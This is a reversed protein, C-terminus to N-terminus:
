TKFRDDAGNSDVWGKEGVVTQTLTNQGAHSRYTQNFKELNSRCVSKESVVESTSKTGVNGVLSGVVVNNEM